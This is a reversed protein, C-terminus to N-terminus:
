NDRGRCSIVYLHLFFSVIRQVFICEKRAVLKTGTSLICITTIPWERYVRHPREFLNSGVGEQHEM